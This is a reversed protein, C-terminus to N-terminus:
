KLLEPNEFINGFVELSPKHWSSRSINFAANNYVVESVTISSHKYEEDYWEGKIIDGEYIEVGNKDKLGTYQQMVYYDDLANGGHIYWKCDVYIIDNDIDIKHLFGKREKDWVRFKFIRNQINTTDM